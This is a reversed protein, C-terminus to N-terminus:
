GAFVVKRVARELQWSLNRRPHTLFPDPVFEINPDSRGTQDSATFVRCNYGLRSLYKFFRYPRAGGSANEPPFHYAFILVLRETMQSVM